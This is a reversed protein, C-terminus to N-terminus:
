LLKLRVSVPLIYKVKKGQPKPYKSENLRTNINPTIKDNMDELEVLLYKSGMPAVNLTALLMLIIEKRM